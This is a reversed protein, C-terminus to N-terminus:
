RRRPGMFWSVLSYRQGRTVPTVEHHLESPFFIITGREKLIYDQNGQALNLQGGKFDKRPASLLLSFSLKREFCRTDDRGQIMNNDTHLGYHGDDDENYGTFQVEHFTDLDYGFATANAALGMLHIKQLVHATAEDWRPIWSTVSRRISTDVKSKGGHGVIAEKPGCEIGRKIILDCEKDSFAGVFQQFYDRM